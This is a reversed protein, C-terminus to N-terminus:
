AAVPEITANLEQKTEIEIEIEIGVGIERTFKFQKLM